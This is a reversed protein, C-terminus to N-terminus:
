SGSAFFNSQDFTIPIKFTEPAGNEIDEPSSRVEMPKITYKEKQENLHAMVRNFFEKDANKMFDQIHARNTVEDEGVVIKDIGQVIM